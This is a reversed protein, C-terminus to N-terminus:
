MDYNQMVTSIILGNSDENYKLPLKLSSIDPAILYVRKFQFKIVNRTKKM